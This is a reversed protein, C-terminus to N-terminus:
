IIVTYIAYRKCSVPYISIEALTDIAGDDFEFAQQIGKPM